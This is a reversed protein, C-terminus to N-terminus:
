GVPEIDRDCKRDLEEDDVSLICDDIGSVSVVNDTGTNLIDEGEKQEECIDTGVDTADKSSERQEDSVEQEYVKNTEDVEREVWEPIEWLTFETWIENIEELDNPVGFAGKEYEKAVVLLSSIAIVLVYSLLKVFKQWLPESTMSFFLGRTVFSIGVMFLLSSIVARFTRRNRYEQLTLIQGQKNYVIDTTAWKISGATIHVIIKEYNKILRKNNSLYMSKESVYNNNVLYERKKLNTHRKNYIQLFYPLYIMKETSKKILNRHEEYKQLTRETNLGRQLAQEAFGQRIATQVLTLSLSMFGISTLNERVNQWYQESMIEGINGFTLICLLVFGFSAIITGVNKRLVTIFM